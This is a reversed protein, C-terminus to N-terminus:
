TKVVSAVNLDQRPLLSRPPVACPIAFLGERRGEADVGTYHAQAQVALERLGRLQRQQVARGWFSLFVLGLVPKSM